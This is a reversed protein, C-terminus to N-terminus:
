QLLLASDILVINGKQSSYLLILKHLYCLKFIGIKAKLVALIPNKSAIKEGRFM